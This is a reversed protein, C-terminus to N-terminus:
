HRLSNSRRFQRGVGVSRGFRLAPGEPLVPLPLTAESCSRVLVVRWSLAREFSLGALRGDKSM